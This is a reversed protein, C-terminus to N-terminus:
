SEVGAKNGGWCREYRKGVWWGVGGKPGRVGHEEM